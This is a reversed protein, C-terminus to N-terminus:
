RIGKEWPSAGDRSRWGVPLPSPHFFCQQNRRRQRHPEQGALGMGGPINGHELGDPHDIDMGPAPRNSDLGVGAVCAGALAQRFRRLIHAAATVPLDEQVRRFKQEQGRLHLKRLIKIGEQARTALDGPDLRRRIQFGCSFIQGGM